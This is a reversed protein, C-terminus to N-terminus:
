EESPWATKPEGQCNNSTGSMNHENPSPCGSQFCSDGALAVRAASTGGDDIAPLM